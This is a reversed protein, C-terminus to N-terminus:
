WLVEIRKNYSQEMEHQQSNLQDIKEKSDEIQKDLIEVQQNKKVQEESISKRNRIWHHNM